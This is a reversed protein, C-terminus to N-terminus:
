GGLSMVCCTLFASRMERCVSKSLLFLGRSRDLFVSVKLIGNCGCSVCVFRSKSLVQLLVLCSGFNRWSHVFAGLSRLMVPGLSVSRSIRVLCCRGVSWWSVRVRKWLGLLCQVM